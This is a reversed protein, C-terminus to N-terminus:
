GNRQHRKYKRFHWYIIISLIASFFCWVSTFAYQYSLYTIAVAVTSVAGFIKLINKHSFLLSGCTFFVYAGAIIFQYPSSLYYAISNQNVFTILPNNILFYLFYLSASLGGIKFLTFIKKRTKSREGQGAVLPIFTPWLIFAFFLFGYSSVATCTQNQNILSVWVFGEIIQQIGFLLPIVALPLEKKHQVKSLTVVGVVLLIAGSTFSAAASFCM